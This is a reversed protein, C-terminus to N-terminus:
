AFRKHKNKEQLSSERAAGNKNDADVDYAKCTGCYDKKPQKISINYNKLVQTFRRQTPYIKPLRGGTRIADQLLIWSEPFNDELFHQYM